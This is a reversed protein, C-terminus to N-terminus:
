IDIALEGRQLYVGLGLPNVSNYDEIFQSDGGVEKAASIVPDDTPFRSNPVTINISAGQTGHITPDIEGTIRMVM